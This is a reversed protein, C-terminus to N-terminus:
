SISFLQIPSALYAIYNCTFNILVTVTYGKIFLNWSILCTPTELMKDRYWFLQVHLSIIQVYFYPFQNINTSQM